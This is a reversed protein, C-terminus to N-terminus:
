SAEVKFLVMSDGFTVVEMMDEEEKVIIVTGKNYIMDINPIDLILM